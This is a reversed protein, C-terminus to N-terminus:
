VKIFNDVLVEYWYKKTPTGCSQCPSSYVRSVLTGTIQVRVGNQVEGLADALDGWACIGVLDTGKRLSTGGLDEACKQVEIKGTFRSYENAVKSLEGYKLKGTLIVLNRDARM